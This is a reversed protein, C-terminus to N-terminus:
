SEEYGPALMANQVGYLARPNALQLRFEKGKTEDRLSGTPSCDVNWQRLLYSIVAAREQIKLKGGEMKLDFETTEPFIEQHHPILELEVIRSWQIDKSPQERDERHSRELVAASAVRTLVLDIFRDRLRDFGRAHWRAGNTVLAHPVFDRTTLGSSYSHYTVHVARQPPIARTIPAVCRWDPLSLPTAVDAPILAKITAPGTEGFGVCLATLVRDIPHRFLPQFKSTPRYTKSSGHLEIQGPHVDQYTSLDRTAATPSLGFKTTLDARSVVGLFLARFDIFQLRKITRPHLGDLTEDSKEFVGVKLHRFRHLYTVM